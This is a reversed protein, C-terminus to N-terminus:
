SPDRDDPTEKPPEPETRIVYWGTIMARVNNVPGSLFVLLVHVVAFATIGM